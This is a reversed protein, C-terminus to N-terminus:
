QGATAAAACGGERKHRRWDEAQHAACCYCVARCRGCLKFAKAHPETQACEPLACARLGHRAVYAAARQQQDALSVLLCSAPSTADLLENWDVMRRLAAEEATSLGCVHRLQELLSDAGDDQLVLRVLNGRSSAPHVIFPDGTAQAGPPAAGGHLLSRSVVELAARLAGYVARLRTEREARTHAPPRLAAEDIACTWFMVAGQLAPPMTGGAFYAVEEPTPTFFTGARFRDACLSLCQQSLVLIRGDRSRVAKMVDFTLANSGGHV